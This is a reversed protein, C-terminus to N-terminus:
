QSTANNRKPEFRRAVREDQPRVIIKGAKACQRLHEKYDEIGLYCDYNFPLNKGTLEYLQKKLEMIEEDTNLIEVIRM